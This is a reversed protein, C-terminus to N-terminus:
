VPPLSPVSSPSFHSSFSPLFSIHLKTLPNFILFAPSLPPRPSTSFTSTHHFLFSKNPRYPASLYTSEVPYLPSPLCFHLPLLCVQCLLPLPPSRWIALFSLLTNNGTLRTQEPPIFPCQTPPATHSNQKDFSIPSLNSGSSLSSIPLFM